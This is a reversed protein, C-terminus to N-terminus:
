EDETPEDEKKAVADKGVKGIIDMMDSVSAGKGNKV